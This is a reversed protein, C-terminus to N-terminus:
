VGMVEIGSTLRPVRGPGDACVHTPDVGKGRVNVCPRISIVHPLLPSASAVSGQRLPWIRWLRQLVAGGDREGERNAWTVAGERM